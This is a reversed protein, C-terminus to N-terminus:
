CVKNGRMLNKKAATVIEKPFDLFALLAIANSNGGIGKHIKYDFCIDSDTVVSEFYYNKYQSERGYVLELDHTAVIFFSDTKAFYDLIAESAALREKTNTGKLIEDIVCLTAPNKKVQELMRKLYKTEKIYYSEGTLVDDRIAMSTMVSLKPLCFSGAACTHITQALVVNLALAKMFTSKGSANAGTIIAKSSLEFDNAVAREILPHYIGKGQISHEESFAPKCVVELSKRFSAVAIEMDVNGAFEYLLLVEQQKKYIAKMLYNFAAIDFLTIGYIYDQLMYLMDGSLSGAKRTQFSVLKKSLKNLKLVAREVEESVFAEKWKQNSTMTKCFDVLQKLSGLSYLYVEYKQKTFLYVMLNTVAVCLLGAFCIPNETFISGLFFGVLLAQLLHLLFTSQITWDEPHMMFVPMYYNEERKGIYSLKEEISIREEEHNEFFEIQQEFQKWNHNTGTDHLRHYLIQEGMYSNTNNIRYFVEVMELDNWSIDDLSTDPMENHYIKIEDMRNKVSLFRDNELPNKGYRARIRERRLKRARQNM